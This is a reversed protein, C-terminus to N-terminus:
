AASREPATLSPDLAWSLPMRGQAARRQRSPLDVPRVRRLGAVGKPSRSRTSRSRRSAQSARELNRAISAVDATIQPLRDSSKRLSETLRAVEDAVKACFGDDAPPRRARQVDGAAKRGDALLAEM